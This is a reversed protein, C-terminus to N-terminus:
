FLYQLNMHTILKERKKMAPTLKLRRDLAPNRVIDRVSFIQAEIDINHYPALRLLGYRKEYEAKAKRYAASRKESFRSLYSCINEVPVGEKEFQEKEKVLRDANEKYLRKKEKAPFGSLVNILSHSNSSVFYM